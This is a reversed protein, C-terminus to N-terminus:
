VGRKLGGGEKVEFVHHNVEVFKEAECEGCGDDNEDGSHVNNDKNM